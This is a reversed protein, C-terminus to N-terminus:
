EPLTFYVIIAAVIVPLIAVLAFKAAMFQVARGADDSYASHEAEGRELSM